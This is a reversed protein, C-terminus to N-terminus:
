ITIDNEDNLKGHVKCTDQNGSLRKLVRKKTIKRGLGGASPQIM